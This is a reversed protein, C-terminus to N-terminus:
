SRCQLGALLQDRKEDPTASIPRGSRHLDEVSGTREFKNVISKMNHGEMPPISFEQSLRRRAEASNENSLKNSKFLDYLWKLKITSSFIHESVSCQDYRSYDIPVCM